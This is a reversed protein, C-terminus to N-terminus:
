QMNLNDLRKLAYFLGCILASSISIKKTDINNLYSYVDRVPVFVRDVIVGGDSIPNSAIKDNDSIATIFTLTESSLGASTSSNKLEVYLKDAKYGTEEVLEKDACEMLTEFSDDDGILGAPSELCYQAKNEALIPPRKTLLFVFNYGNDRKIVTTIAVASDHSPLDNTRRIYYWDGGMPTECSIFELYKSKSLIKM